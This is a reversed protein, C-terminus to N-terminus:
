WYGNIEASMTVKGCSVVEKAKIYKVGKKVVKDVNENTM